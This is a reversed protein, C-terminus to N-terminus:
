DRTHLEVMSHADALYNAILTDNIMSVSDLNNATEVIVTKWNEREPRQLDVEVVRGNPANLTTHIWFHTGHNDIPSYLADAETAIHVIQAEADELDKIALENNPSSGKSQYIFLYRGDDSVAAGLNMEKDDPRDFILRDESQPTGLKHFF